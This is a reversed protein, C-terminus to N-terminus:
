CIGRKGVVGGITAASIREQVVTGPFDVGFEFVIAFPADGVDPEDVGPERLELDVVVLPEM